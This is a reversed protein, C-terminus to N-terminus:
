LFGKALKTNEYNAVHLYPGGMVGEEGGERKGKKTLCCLIWVKM